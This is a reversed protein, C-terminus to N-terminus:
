GESECTEYDSVRDKAEVPKGELQKWHGSLIIM